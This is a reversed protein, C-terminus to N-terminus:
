ASSPMRSESMHSSNLRTSKRDEWVKKLSYKNGDYFKSPNDADPDPNGPLKWSDCCKKTGNIPHVYVGDNFRYEVLWRKRKANNKSEESKTGGVLRPRPWELIGHSVLARKEFPIDRGELWWCQAAERIQGAFMSPPEKVLWTARRVEDPVAYGRTRVANDPDPRPQGEPPDIIDEFGDTYFANYDDDPQNQRDGYMFFSRRDHCGTVGIIHINKM